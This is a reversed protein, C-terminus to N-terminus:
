IEYIAYVCHTVVTGLFLRWGTTYFTAASKTHTNENLINIILVLM